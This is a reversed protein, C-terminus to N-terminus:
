PMSTRSGSTIRLVKNTDKFSNAGALRYDDSIQLGELLIDANEVTRLATKNEIKTAKYGPLSTDVLFGKVQNDAVDRAFIVM